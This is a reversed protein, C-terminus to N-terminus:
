PYSRDSREAMDDQGVVEITMCAHSKWKLREKGRLISDITDLVLYAYVSSATGMM